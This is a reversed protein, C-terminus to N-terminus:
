NQNFEERTRMIKLSKTPVSTRVEQGLYLVECTKLVSNEAMVMCLRNNRLDKYIGRIRIAIKSAQKM